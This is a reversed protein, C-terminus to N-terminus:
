ETFLSQIVKSKMEELRTFNMAQIYHTELAEHCKGADEFAATAGDLLMKLCKEGFRIKQKNQSLIEKDLFRKMNIYRYNKDKIEDDYNREGLIFCSDIGSFYLANPQEPSLPSFSICVDQKK